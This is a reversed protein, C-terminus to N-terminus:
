KTMGGAGLVILVDQLSEVRSSLKIPYDMYLGAQRRLKTDGIKGIELGEPFTGDRGSTVIDLGKSLSASSALVRFVARHRIDAGKGMVVGQVQKQPAYAPIRSRKDSLLLCDAYSGVSHMVRGVVGETSIVAARSPISEPLPVAIRLRVVRFYPNLSRAVVHSVLTKMEPHKKTYGVLRRLRANERQLRKYSILFPRITRLQTKLKQNDKEVTLLDTYKGFGSGIGNLLDSMGSQAFGVIRNTSDAVIGGRDGPVVRGSLFMFVMSLAVLFVAIVASKHRQLAEM